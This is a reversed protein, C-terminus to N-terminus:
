KYWDLSQVIYDIFADFFTNLAYQITGNGSYSTYTYGGQSYQNTQTFESPPTIGNSKARPNVVLFYYGFVGAIIVFIVGIIAGMGIGKQNM